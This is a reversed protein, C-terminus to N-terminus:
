FTMAHYLESDTIDKKPNVKDGREDLVKYKNQNLRL